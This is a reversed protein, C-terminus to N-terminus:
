KQSWDTKVLRKPTADKENVPLDVVGAWRMAEDMKEQVVTAVALAYEEACTLDLEDHAMNAWRVDWAPNRDFIPVLWGMCRKILDAEAGMWVFSVSDTGKAGWYGESWTGDERQYPKKWEKILFLRRGTLTRAEGYEGEIGYQTFKHNHSNVQHIHQRQKNYLVRYLGDWTTILEQAEEETIMIPIPMTELQKKLTKASTRNLKAYNTSKCGQRRTKFEKYLPHTKDAAVVEAEEFTLKAGKLVMVRHTMALHADRGANCDRLM